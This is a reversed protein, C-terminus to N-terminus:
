QNKLIRNEIIKNTQKNQTKNQTQARLLIPAASLSDLFHKVQVATYDTIATLNFRENWEVLLHFYKEFQAQQVPSLELGFTRAHQYLLSMITGRKLSNPLM